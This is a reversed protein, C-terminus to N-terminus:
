YKRYIYYVDNDHGEGYNGKVLVVDTKGDEKLKEVKDCAENWQAMDNSHFSWVQIYGEKELASASKDLTDCGMDKKIRGETTEFKSM